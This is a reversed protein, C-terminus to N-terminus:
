FGLLGLNVDEADLASAFEMVVCRLREAAAFNNDQFARLLVRLFGKKGTDLANLKESPLAHRRTTSWFIEARGDREAIFIGVSSIATKNSSPGYLLNREQYNFVQVVNICDM